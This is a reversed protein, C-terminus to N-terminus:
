VTTSAQSRTSKRRALGLGILGLGLLGLMAPEPVSTSMAFTSSGGGAGYVVTVSNTLSFPNTTDVSSGGGGSFSGGPGGTFPGLNILSNGNFLSSATVTGNTTGGIGTSAGSTPGAPNTFGTETLTFTLSGAGTNTLIISSFDLLAISATGPANSAGTTVLAVWSGIGGSFGIQGTAGLVDGSLNDTITISQNTVNDKLTLILTAHALPACLAFMGVALTLAAVKKIKNTFKM